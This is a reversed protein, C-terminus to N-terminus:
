PMRFIVDNPSFNRFRGYEMGKATGLGCDSAELSMSSTSSAGSMMIPCFPPTTSLASYEMNFSMNFARALFSFRGGYTMKWSVERSSM